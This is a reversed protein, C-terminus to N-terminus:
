SLISYVLALLGMVAMFSYIKMQVMLEHYYVADKDLIPMEDHIAKLVADDLYLKNNAM